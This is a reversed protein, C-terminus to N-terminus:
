KRSGSFIKALTAPFVRNRRVFVEAAGTKFLCFGGSNREFYCGCPFWPVFSFAIIRPQRTEKNNLVAQSQREIACFVATHMGARVIEVGDPTFATAGDIHQAVATGRRRFFQELGDPLV